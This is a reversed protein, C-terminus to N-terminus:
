EFRKWKRLQGEKEKLFFNDEKIFGKKNRTLGFTFYVAKIPDNINNDCFTNICM